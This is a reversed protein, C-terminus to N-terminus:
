VMGKCSREQGVKKVNEQELWEEWKIERHEEVESGVGGMETHEMRQKELAWERGIGGRREVM